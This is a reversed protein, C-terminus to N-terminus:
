KISIERESLEGLVPMRFDGVVNLSTERGHVM